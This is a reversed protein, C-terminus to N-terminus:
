SKVARALTLVSVKNAGSALLTNACENVTAGTTFVDDILLINKGRFLSGYKANCSFARRVNKKRDKVRLHGQTPTSRVRILGDLLVKTQIDQGLFFSILGSQNYRRQLLRWPHLPVPIIFDADHLVDAGARKLWPMFGKVFHTKDGHKFALIINRSEDDYVLASRAKDLPPPEKLCTACQNQGYGDDFEFPVGCKDCLPDAIFNLQAWAESSLMGQQDVIEGTVICRPPLIFDVLQGFSKM